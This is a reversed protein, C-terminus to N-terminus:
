KLIALAAPTSHNTAFSDVLLGNTYERGMRPRNGWPGDVFLIVFVRIFIM